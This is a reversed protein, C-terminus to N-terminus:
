AGSRRLRAGRPSMAAIPRPQTFVSQRAIAIAYVNRLSGKKTRPADCASGIEASQLSFRELRKESNTEFSM